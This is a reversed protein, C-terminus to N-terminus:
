CRRSSCTSCSRRRAGRVRRQDAGVHDPVGGHVARRADPDGGLRRDRGAAHHLQEAPRVAGLHRRRRPPLLHRLAPDVADARRVADGSTAVDFGTYLPITVLFGALAGALAIWARSRAREPRRRVGPGGPRRPDPGLDRPQALDRGDDAEARSRSACSGGPQAARVARHDDHLRLPLRLGTQIQRVLMAFGGVAQASGNVIVGDIVATASTGSGPASRARAAASSGTTSSTSTTSTRSCRTVVGLKERM